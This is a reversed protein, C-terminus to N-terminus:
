HNASVVSTDIPVPQTVNRVAQQIQNNVPTQGSAVQVEDTVTANSQGTAGAVAQIVAGNSGPVAQIVAAGIVGALAPDAAAAAGAIQSAYQPASSASAATVSAVANALNAASFASSSAMAGVIQANFAAAQSPMAAAAVGAIQAALTTASEPSLGCLNSQLASAFATVSQVVLAAVAPNTSAISALPVPAQATGGPSTVTVMGARISFVTGDPATFSVQDATAAIAVGGVNVSAAYSTGRAAAVGAPTRVAYDNISRKAPDIISILSGAKLNLLASQKIRVGGETTISLKEVVVTANEKVVAVTGPFPQIFVEAGGSTTITAGQPIKDGVEVIVAGPKSPFQVKVIGTLKLVTADSPSEAAALLTSTLGFLAAALTYLSKNM